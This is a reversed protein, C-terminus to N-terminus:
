LLAALISYWCATESIGLSFSQSLFISCLTLNLHLWSIKLFWFDSVRVRAYKCLVFVNFYWYEVRPVTYLMHIYARFYLLLQSWGLDLAPSWRDGLNIQAYLPTRTNIQNPGSLCLMVIFSPVRLVLLPRLCPIFIKM